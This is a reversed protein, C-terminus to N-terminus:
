CFNVEAWIDNQPYLTRVQHSRKIHNGATKAKRTATPTPPFCRELGGGASGAVTCAMREKAEVIAPNVM